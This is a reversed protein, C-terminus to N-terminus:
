SPAEIMRSLASSESATWKATLAAATIASDWYSFCEIPHPRNARTSHVYFEQLMQVSLVCDDRPDLSKAYILVNTDLFRPM